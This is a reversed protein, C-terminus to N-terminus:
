RVSMWGQPDGKFNSVKLVAPEFIESEVKVM